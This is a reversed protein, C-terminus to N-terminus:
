ENHIIETNEKCIFSSLLVVLALMPRVILILVCDIKRRCNPSGSFIEALSRIFLRYIDYLNQTHERMSDPLRKSLKGSWQAANSRYM